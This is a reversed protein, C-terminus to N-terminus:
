APLEGMARVSSEVTPDVAATQGIDCLDLVRRMPADPPAVVRLRQRHTRLRRALDFLLEIGASDLYSVQTLDIVLGVEELTLRESLAARLEDTNVSDIEGEVHGVLVDGVTEFQLRVV